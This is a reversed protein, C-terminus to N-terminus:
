PNDFLDNGAWDVHDNPSVSPPVGRFNAADDISGTGTYVARRPYPYLPRTRVVTGNTDSLSAVIADPATGNEVWSVMPGLADFNNPGYGGRCHYMGPALYMRAFEQVKQLGGMRDQMAQYYALTGIPPIAQDAWGHYIILKGGRDRFASLDAQTSNQIPGQDRLSAFETATFQWDFPKPGIEGVPRIMFRLMADSFSYIPALRAGAAAIVFGPWASESGLMQGSPYLRRGNEDVPGGYLKRTATVQAPTLCDARDTGASCEVSGPDFTCARPDDIQGDVLGDIGDCAALVAAHLAPIKDPTLVSRGASDTNVRVNWTQMEANLPLAYIELAGAVIGDFDAPFREAEMMAERGGDSCGNFYSHTPAAGYFSTLIAKSAISLVHVARYGYDIRLQGDQLAWAGGPGSHGDDTAAMAFDGGLAADCTPFTSAPVAGCYGGCGQQLYRGQYSQTPLKLEFQIQPSIYGKVDCYDPSTATAAVMASSVLTTAADPVTTFDPPPSGDAANRTLSECTMVPAVIPAHPVKGASQQAPSAVAPWPIVAVLLAICTALWRRWSWGAVGGVRVGSDVM